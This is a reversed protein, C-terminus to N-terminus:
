WVANLHKRFKELGRYYHNRINSRSQGLREAIEAFTFGEFFHLRLTERQDESLDDLIRKWGNQGFLGEVTYDYDAGSGAVPEIERSSDAIGSAYFGQVKLRRRRLCAQTYAVQFIWSRASGKRADFLGGKRYIYLFVDQVLDEAENRDKLIRLGVVRVNRAYRLFLLSLAETDGDCVRAILNAESELHPHRASSNAEAVGPADKRAVDLIPIRATTSSSVPAKGEL